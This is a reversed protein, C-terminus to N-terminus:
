KTLRELFMEALECDSDVLRDVLEHLRKRSVEQKTSATNSINLWGCIVELEKRNFESLGTEPIKLLENYRQMIWGGDLLVIASSPISYKEQYLAFIENAAARDPHIIGVIQFFREVPLPAVGSLMQSLSSEKIGLLNAVDRQSSSSNRIANKVLVSIQNDIDSFINSEGM